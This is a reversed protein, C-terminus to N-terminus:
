KRNIGIGVHGSCGCLKGLIHPGRWKRIDHPIKLTLLGVAHVWADSSLGILGQIGKFLLDYIYICM